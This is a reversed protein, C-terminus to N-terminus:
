KESNEEKLCEGCIGYFNIEVANIKNDKLEEENFTKFNFLKKEDLFNIKDLEIDQIRGCKKCIFHAHPTINSDYHIKNEISIEKVLGANEFLKVINYV